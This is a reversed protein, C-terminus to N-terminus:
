LEIQLENENSCVHFSSNTKWFTWQGNVLIRRSFTEYCVVSSLKAALSVNRDSSNQLKSLDM